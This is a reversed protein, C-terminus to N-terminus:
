RDLYCPREHEGDVAKGDITRREMRDEEDLRKILSALDDQVNVNLNASRSMVPGFGRDVLERAAALKVQESRANQCLDVLTQVGLAAGASLRRSLEDRLAALVTPNRLLESARVRAAARGARGPHAFGAAVAADAASGPRGGREVYERVFAEQRDTLDRIAVADSPPSSSIKRM